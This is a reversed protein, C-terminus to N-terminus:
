RKLAKRVQSEKTADSVGLAIDILIDSWLTRLKRPVARRLTLTTSQLSLLKATSDKRESSTLDMVVVTAAPRNGDCKDCFGEATYRKTIRKCTICIKRDRSKLFTCILGYNKSTKELDASYQGM